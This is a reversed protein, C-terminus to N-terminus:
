LGIIKKLTYLDLNSKIVEAINDIAEDLRDKINTNLVEKIIYDIMGHASYGIVNNDLSIVGITINEIMLRQENSEIIFEDRVFRGNIYRNIERKEKIDVDLLGLGKISDIYRCLIAYGEDIGIIKSGLRRRFRLGDALGTNNLWKIDEEINSSPPLIIISADLTDITNVYRINILLSDLESLKSANPYMIVIIDYGKHDRLSLSDEAPINNNIYPIIGLIKKNTLIEFREIGHDLIDKSGRFKNIIFGKVLDQHRDELLELTGLMSAFVGGRDIDAVILTNASLVEAIKMNVIDYDRMNIEAPNGAGEIIILDYYEELKGISLLIKDWHYKIFSNYYESAHMIGQDKGLLFVRSTYDGLPKLLIPNMYISPTTKAAFAQISQIKAIELGDDIIYSNSSMNQSKFPAVKYGENAFIRCLAIAILSKGVNSATGQIMLFKAM